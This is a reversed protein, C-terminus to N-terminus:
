RQSVRDRRGVRLSAGLGVRRLRVRAFRTGLTQDSVPRDQEAVSESRLRRPRPQYPHPGSEPLCTQDCESYALSEM